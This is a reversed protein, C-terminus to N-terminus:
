KTVAYPDYAPDLWTGGIYGQNLKTKTYQEVKYMKGNLDMYPERSDDNMEYLGVTGHWIENAFTNNYVSSPVKMIIPTSIDNTGRIKFALYYVKGNAKESLTDGDSPTSVYKGIYTLDYDGIHVEEPSSFFDSFNVHNTTYVVLWCLCVGILIYKMGMGTRKIRQDVLDRPKIDM